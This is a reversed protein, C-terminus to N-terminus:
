FHRRIREPIVKKLWGPSWLVEVWGPDFRLDIGAIEPDIGLARLQAAPRPATTYPLVHGRPVEGRALRRANEAAAARWLPLWGDASREVLAAEPVGLHRAWLRRRLAAAVGTAPEDRLGDLVVLNLDFNRVGRFIRRGPWGSFDDGYSHLSVGDLNATGTTAWADDVVATKSHIFLQTVETRRPGRASPAASWLAFVGVRPHTLLEGEALRRNQWARYATIDPNQNLVLVVELEPSARLAASLAERVPRASFYQNELYVLSRAGAIAELYADLIETSGKPRAPLVGGPVTRVVRLSSGGPASAPPLVPAAPPRLDPGGGRSAGNWVEAFWEALEGVAPGAVRTSLDHIPRGALDDGTRNPDAPRHAGDDWYGNVFPSGVLFAEAADVVVLKAHMIRPFADVGRVEIREPDAGAGALFRRLAPGTDMLISGNLLIRVEVGRAGAAELLVDVLLEGGGEPGAACLCDADFALQSIWISREARRCAAAVRGLAAATDPLFEVANGRSVGPPPPPRVVGPRPAPVLAPPTAVDGGRLGMVLAGGALETGVLWLRSAAAILVRVGGPFVPLLLVTLAAERVGIGGPAFVAVFGAVFALANVGALRPWLGPSVPALSSVFLSFAVGYGVWTAAYLVLLLAADRWRGHWRPAERRTLRAAVGVLRNLVAPHALVAAAPLAALAGWLPPGSRALQAPAALAGAVVGAGM